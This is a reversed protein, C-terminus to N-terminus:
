DPQQPNRVVPMVDAIHQDPRSRSDTSSLPKSSAGTCIPFLCSWGYGAYQDFEFFNLIPQYTAAIFVPSNGKQCRWSSYQIAVAVPRTGWGAFPCKSFSKRIVGSRSAANSTATEVSRPKSQHDLGPTIDIEFRVLIRPISPMPNNQSRTLARYKTRGNISKQQSIGTLNTPFLAYRQTCVKRSNKKINRNSM